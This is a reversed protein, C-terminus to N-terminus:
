VMQHRQENLVDLRYNIGMRTDRFYVNGNAYNRLDNQNTDLYSLKLTEGHENFLAIQGNPYQFCLTHQDFGLLRWGTGTPMYKTGADSAIKVNGRQEEIFNIM